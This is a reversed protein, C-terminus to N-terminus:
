YITPSANEDEGTEHHSNLSNKNSSSNDAPKFQLDPLACMVAGVGYENGSSTNSESGSTSSESESQSTTDDHHQRNKYNIPNYRQKPENSSESDHDTARVALRSTQACFSDPVKTNDRNKRDEWFAKKSIFQSPDKGSELYSQNINSVPGSRFTGKKFPQPESNRKIDQKYKVYERNSNHEGHQKRYPTSSRRENSRPRSGQRSTSRRSTSRNQRHPKTTKNRSERKSSGRNQRDRSISRHRGQSKSRNRSNNRSKSRQHRGGHDDRRGHKKNSNSRGDGYSPRNYRRDHSRSRSRHRWNKDIHNKQKKHTNPNFRTNTVRHISCNRPTQRLCYNGDNNDVDDQFQLITKDMFAAKYPTPLQKLHRLNNIACIPHLHENFQKNYKVELNRVININKLETQFFHLAKQLNGEVIYKNHNQIFKQNIAPYCNRTTFLTTAQISLEENVGDWIDEEDVDHYDSLWDTIQWAWEEFTSDPFMSGEEILGLIKEKELLKDSTHDADYHHIMKDVLEKLDDETEIQKRIQEIKFNQRFLKHRLSNPIFIRELLLMQLKPETWGVEECFKFYTYKMFDGLKQRRRNWIPIKNIKKYGGLDAQPITLYKIHKYNLSEMKAKSPDYPNLQTEPPSLPQPATEPDLAPKKLTLIFNATKELLQDDPWTQKINRLAELDSRFFNDTCARRFMKELYYRNTKYAEDTSKATILPCLKLFTDDAMAKRQDVDSTLSGKFLDQIFTLDIDTEKQATDLERRTYSNRAIHVAATSTHLATIFRQQYWKENKIDASTLMEHSAHEKSEGIARLVSTFLKRLHTGQNEAFTKSTYKKNENCMHTKTISDINRLTQM